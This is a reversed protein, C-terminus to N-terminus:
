CFDATQGHTKSIFFEIDPLAAALKEYLVPVVTNETCFHDADILNIGYHRAELFVDYKIDATIFTDAGADIVKKLESGGSGGIVAVRDVLRGADHFRLGASNLAMRIYPLYEPMSMSHFISGIRGICYPKGDLYGDVCLMEPKEIGVKKALADNVGVEAADLNTHMCIASIGNEILKIIRSGTYDDARVAKIPSFILPHHSVILQAGNDIAEEIVDDSVDLAIEAKKIEKEPWGALLGVNDFDMKMEPPAIKELCSLVDKIQAM